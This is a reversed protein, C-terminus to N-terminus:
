KWQFWVLFGVGIGVLGDFVWHQHIRPLFGYNCLGYGSEVSGLFASHVLLFGSSVCASGLRGGGIAMVEFFGSEFFGVLM